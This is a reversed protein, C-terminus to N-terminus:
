SPFGVLGVDALLKLECKLARTEGPEGYESTKPAKNKNSLYAANGKGGRGGKAVIVEENDNVLDALILNTEEDKITTGIPVKIILDEASLGTRNNGSGNGGHDAKINKKYRLDILTKLGKEARFIVNGGRGGNGGDPGGMEVYKEHRFSTSGDGGKGATVKIIVEDIFM